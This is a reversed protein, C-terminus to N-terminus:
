EMLDTTSRVRGRATNDNSLSLLAILLSPTDVLVSAHGSRLSNQTNSAGQTDIYSTLM